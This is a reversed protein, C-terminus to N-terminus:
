CWALVAAVAVQIAGKELAAAGASHLAKEAITRSEADLSALLKQTPPQSTAFALFADADHVPLTAWTHWAVISGAFGANRLRARLAPLDKGILIGERDPPPIAGFPALTEQILRFATDGDGGEIRLSMAAAGGPALV